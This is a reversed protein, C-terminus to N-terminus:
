QLAAVAAEVMKQDQDVTGGSAGVGGIVTEGVRVPMGGAFIVIRDHNTAHNLKRADSLTLTPTQRPM